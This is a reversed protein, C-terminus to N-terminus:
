LLILQMTSWQVSVTHIGVLSRSPGVRGISVREAVVCDLVTYCNQDTDVCFLSYLSYTFLDDCHEAETIQCLICMMSTLIM